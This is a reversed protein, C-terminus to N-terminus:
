VVSKRDPENKQTRHIKQTGIVELGIKLDDVSRALMGGSLLTRMKLRKPNKGIKTIIGRTNIGGFSAKFGFIGCFHAPIRISGGSDNCFSIQSMGSAIAAACGGSSGGPTHDLNWPNNTRGFLTNNTQLDYTLAPLNTKGLIIAGAELLLKVLAADETPVYHKFPAFGSSTPSGTVSINDKISIPIGLLPQNNGKVLHNDIEKARDLVKKKNVYVFANVRPNLRDIREFHASVLEYATIESRSLADIVESIPRNILDSLTSQKNM